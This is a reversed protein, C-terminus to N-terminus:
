ADFRRSRCIVFISHYNFYSSKKTKEGIAILKDVDSNITSTDNSTQSKLDQQVLDIYHRFEEKLKANSAFACICAYFHVCRKASCSQTDNKEGIKTTIQQILKPNNNCFILFNRCLFIVKSTTCSCTYRHEVKDKSKTTFFSFHLYGLPHKPSAKCRVVMVNKSVRQVLPGTKMTALSWIEQKIESNVDLRTLVSHNIVLDQAGAYCRMAAQIHQCEPM